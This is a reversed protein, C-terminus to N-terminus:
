RASLLAREPLYASEDDEDRHLTNKIFPSAHKHISRTDRRFSEDGPSSEEDFNEHQRSSVAALRICKCLERARARFYRSDHNFRRTQRYFYRLGASSVQAEFEPNEEERGTEALRGTSGGGEARERKM